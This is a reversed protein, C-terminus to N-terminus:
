QWQIPIFVTFQTGQEPQSEVSIQGRHIDVIKRVISLGLGSGGANRNRSKDAKYFRDFIYPLDEKSIGVGSDAIIVKAGEEDATLKVWIRGNVPTFKISNNLLNVWVQSLLEEVGEIYIEKLDLEIEIQKGLWQPETALVNSQLLRDLRFRSHEFSSRDSELSSLKLMNDSMQSLRRSEGEIIDLYHGRQGENLQSNRLAETFGRISTLPSQIEHSVNSIFDQRMMEMRGLEGALENVSEVIQKFERYEAQEDLKVSFDGKSIRRIADLISKVKAIEKKRYFLGILMMSGFFLHFAIIINIAQLVYTSSPVGTYHYVWSMIYYAGFWCAVLLLLVAAYQFIHKVINWIKKLIKM